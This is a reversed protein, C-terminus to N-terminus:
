NLLNADATRSKERVGQAFHRWVIKGAKAANARTGGCLGGEMLMAVKNM